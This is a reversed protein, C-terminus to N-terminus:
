GGGVFQVIEVRDMNSLRTNDWEKRRVIKRNVEVAVHIGDIGLLLLLEQVNSVPSITRTEGNIELTMNEM